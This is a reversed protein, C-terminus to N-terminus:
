FVGNVMKQAKSKHRGSDGSLAMVPVKFKGYKHLWETNEEKDQDLARYTESACRFAGPKKYNHVYTAVDEPGIAASDYSHKDFFHSLYQEENHKVLIEALDPVAHFVFHWQPVTGMDEEFASTEPLPCEGWIV